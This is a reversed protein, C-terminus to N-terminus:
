NLMDCAGYDLNPLKEGRTMYNCVEAYVISYIWPRPKVKLGIFCHVGRLSYWLSCQLPVGASPPVKAFAVKRLFNYVGSLDLNGPTSFSRM